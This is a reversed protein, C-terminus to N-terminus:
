SEESEALDLVRAASDPVVFIAKPETPCAVQCAGCGNCRQPDAQPLTMYEVEDFKIKIAQYPCRNECVSCEKNWGLLCLDINVKAIGIVTRRKEALSLPRLAGSPCVQMCANCGEGCYDGEIHLLPTLFARMGGEGLDPRLIKAPCARICNGCRICLGGFRESDAAGPPRLPGLTEGAGAPTQVLWRGAVAGLGTVVGGLGISLMARRALAPRGSVPMESLGAGRWRRWGVASALMDQSAGLPCLRRCWLNPAVFSIVLVVAMAIGALLEPWAPAQWAIGVLAPFMALPDLWLFLPYGFVAGGLTLLAIWKGLPPAAKWWHRRRMPSMRGVWEFVLGAPCAHTCFWRRRWFALVLVPVGILTMLSVTRVALVSAAMIWPSIAPVLLPANPWPLVPLVLLLALALAIFRGIVRLVRARVM